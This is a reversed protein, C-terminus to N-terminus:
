KIKIWIRGNVSVNEQGWTEYTPIESVIGVIREPYERIEERTMKSVTGNPGTCVADGAEYIEIDEYPYALVRGAVAIPTKCEETEGMANGYTDSIISGGPQLRATSKKMEGFKTEIVVRGPEVTNAKRFEAYDNWVANYVRSCGQLYGNAINFSMGYDYGNTTRSTTSGIWYFSTGLIGFSFYKASGTNTQAMWPHYSGTDSCSNIYYSARKQGDLWSSPVDGSLYRGPSYVQFTGHTRIYTTDTQYWGGGYTANYWGTAGNSRFWNSCSVSGTVGSDYGVYIRVGAGITQSCYFSKNNYTRVWTTDTMYIGGGYSENYWGTSGTTRIWSNCIFSSTSLAYSTNNYGGFAGHTAFLNYGNSSTNRQLLYGFNSDYIGATGSSANGWFYLNGGSYGVGNQNEGTSKNAWLAPAYLIGTMTDGTVNVYRSDLASTYSTCAVAQGAANIYVPTTSGGVATDNTHYVLQGTAGPLYLTYNSTNQTGTQIQVYGSSQSYLRIFGYKNAATGSATSNGLYLGGYGVASTTGELTRYILGNNASTRQHVVNYFPIYYSTASTPNTYANQAILNYGAYNPITVTKNSSAVESVITTYYAGSGFMFIRGQKNAATGSATSNGLQLDAYGLADATGELTYYMIGSNCGLRQYDNLYFPIKYGTRSTPNTVGNNGIVMYGAYNPITVTKHSSAANTQFLSYYAGTGYIVLRGRSNGATGSAISNGLVTDANGVASTTGTTQIYSTWVQSGNSDYVNYRRSYMARYHYATGSAGIDYTNGAAPYLHKTFTNNYLETQSDSHRTYILWVGRTYDYLGANGSAATLIAIDRLSNKARHYVDVAAAWHSYLRGQTDISFVNHTGATTGTTNRRFIWGRANTNSMTFYTAWDSTVGGLTGFTATKAFMIGYTPTTGAYTGYLSIGKGIGDSQTVGFGKAANIYGDSTINAGFWSNASVSIGGTVRLTGTTASTAEEGNVINTIGNLYSPGNVYLRYAIQAAVGIGVYGGQNVSIGIQETGANNAAGNGDCWLELRNNVGDSAGLYKVTYGTSFNDGDTSHAIRIANINLNNSSISIAPITSASSYYKSLRGTNATLVVVANDRIALLDGWSSATDSSQQFRFVNTNVTSDDTTIIRQQYTGDDWHIATNGTRMKIDGTIAAHGIVQLPYTSSPSLSTGGIVTYRLRTDASNNIYYNTGNAFYVVGNHLTSGQVYLNYGINAAAGVSVIPLFTHGSNNIYYTSGSAFYATGHVRIGNTFIEFINKVNTSKKIDTWAGSTAATMVQFLHGAALHRIRDPGSGSVATMSTTSGVDNGKFLLLEASESDGYRNEGIYTHNYSGAGDGTTGYFAIYNTDGNVNNGIRLGANFSATSTVTLQRFKADGSNNIYYTTGNAFYLIGNFLSNGTVKLIYTGDTAPAVGLGTGNQVYMRGNSDAYFSGAPNQFKTHAFITYGHIEKYRMSSSGANYTNDTKPYIHQTNLTGLMTDGGRLVWHRKPNLNNTDVSTKPSFTRSAGDTYTTMKISATLLTGRQSYIHYVAGGGRLWVVLGTTATDLGAVMTCYSEYHQLVNTVNASFGGAGNGDWYRSGNWLLTLTLGGRHTATNWTDPAKENYTRTISLLTGAYEQTPKNTIVVPYYTDADGDVTIDLCNDALSGYIHNNVTLTNEFYGTGNVKVTYGTDFTTGSYGVNLKNFKGQGSNDVFYINGNAFYVYGNHLTSGNVYLKYSTNTGAIGLTNSFYGNGSSNAYFKSGGSGVQFQGDTRVLTSGFYSGSTFAGTDNIRLWTDTGKLALKKNLYLLANAATNEAIHLAADTYVDDAFWSEGGVKLSYVTDPAIGLGTNNAVYMDGDNNAYFLGSPTTYKSYAYFIRAYIEKWLATSSGVTQGTTDASAHTVPLINGPVITNGSGNLLTLTRKLTGASYQRVYIPENGNDGTNIELYGSDSATGGAIIQAYDNAAMTWYVGKTTGETVNPFKIMGYFTKDGGISQAANTIVGAASTSANPINTTGIDAGAGDRYTLTVASGTSSFAMTAVYKTSIKQGRDDAYARAAMGEVVDVILKSYASGTKDTANAVVTAWTDTAGPNLKFKDNKVPTGANSAHSFWVHRASNSTATEIGSYNFGSAKQITLSGNADLTKAGTLTQTGTTIAGAATASASPFDVTAIEAGTGDNYTMTVKTTKNTTGDFSLSAVYKKSIQQGRDDAYARAAMGELVDVILKGYAAGTKDTANAVVTAWTDTSAPNYKFKDSLIPMGKNSSHSFWVHRAVADSATGIGSYNFGSNKQITLSGNADLTKAGTLTQTGTTIAGARSASATPFDVTAKIAGSGDYLNVVVKTTKNTTGDFDINSLYHTTITNNASDTKAGDATSAYNANQVTAGDSAKITSTYNAALLTNGNSVSTYVEKSTKKDTSTTDSAESSAILTWSRAGEVQYIVARAWTSVKYYLDALTNGSTNRLGIQLDEKGINYRYLWTVSASSNSGSANTRLSVKAVGYGGGSYSHRIVITMDKDVHTGTVVGTTAIRHWPYNSTNNSSCSVNYHQANLTVNQSGDISVSGQLDSGLTITRATYWKDATAANGNLNGTVNGNLAGNFTTANVTVAEITKWRLKETGLTFTNDTKPQVIGGFQTIGGDNNIYLQASATGSAKAQIENADVSIHAGTPSGIILAGSNATGAATDTGGQLIVQGMFTKNGAFTQAGTNVTGAKTASALPLLITVESNDGKTYTLTAGDTSAYTSGEMTIKKIYTQAINNNLHDYMAKGSTDAVKIRQGNVDYYLNSVWVGSVKEATVYLSGEVIPNVYSGDSNTKLLNTETGTLFKVNAM